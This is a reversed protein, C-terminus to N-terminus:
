PKGGGSIWQHGYELVTTIAIVIGTFVYARLKLKDVDSKVANLDDKTAFKESRENQEKMHQSLTSQMQEISRSTSRQSEKIWEIDNVAVAMKAEQSEDAM